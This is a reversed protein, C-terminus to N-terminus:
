NFFDYGDARMSLVLYLGVAFFERVSASLLQAIVYFLKAQECDSGGM